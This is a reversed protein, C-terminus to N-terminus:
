KEEEVLKTYYEIVWKKDNIPTTLQEAMLDVIKDKEECELVHLMDNTALMNIYKEIQKEKNEIEAKQTKILNLVTKIDEDTCYSEEKNLWKEIRELAEKEEKM